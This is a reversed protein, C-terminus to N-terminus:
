EKGKNIKFDNHVIINELQLIKKGGYMLILKKKKIIKRVIFQILFVLVFMTYADINQTLLVSVIVLAILQYSLDNLKDILMCIIPISIIGILFGFFGFNAICMEFWSPTTGAPIDMISVNLVSSTLYVYHPYPKTSWLARPIFFFILSLFTSGTYPVIEENNIIIQEIVYKIVDDRGIDVRLMDYVSVFSTNSMPRIYVLYLCCFGIIIFAIIPIKIWIKKKQRVSLGQRTYYYFYVLGIVILIFRKGQLWCIVIIYLPLIINKIKKEKTSFYYFFFAYISLLILMSMIRTIHNDEAYRTTRVGYILFSSINGGLVLYLFPSCISLFLLIKNQLLSSAFSHVKNIYMSKKQDYHVAYVRLLIICALIYIDYLIAVIENQMSSKFVRYWYITNYEPYGILYNCLIPVCCILFEILLVYNAISSNKNEIISYLAKICCLASIIILLWDLVITM